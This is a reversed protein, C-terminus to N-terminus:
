ETELASVLQDPEKLKAPSLVIDGGSQTKGSDVAVPGLGPSIRKSLAKKM